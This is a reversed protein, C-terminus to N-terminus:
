NNNNKYNIYRKPMNPNSAANSRVYWDKDKALEALTEAPTNPNIAACSRVDWDEDKALESLAEIVVTKKRFEGM